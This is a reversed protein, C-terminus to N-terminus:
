IFAFKADIAVLQMTWMDNMVHDLIFLTRLTWYTMPM